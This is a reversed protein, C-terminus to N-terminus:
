RKGAVFDRELIFRWNAMSAALDDDSKRPGPDFDSGPENKNGVLVYDTADTYKMIHELFAAKTMALPGLFSFVQHWKPHTDLCLTAMAWNGCLGVVHGQRRLDVVSAITIPGRSCELTDDIDFAYIM